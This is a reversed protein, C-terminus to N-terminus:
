LSENTLERELQTGTDKWWDRDYSFEAIPDKSDKALMDNKIAEMKCFMIVQETNFQRLLENLIDKNYM